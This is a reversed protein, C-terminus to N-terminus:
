EAMMFIVNKMNLCDAMMFIINKMETLNARFPHLGHLLYKNTEIFTNRQLKADNFIVTYYILIELKM